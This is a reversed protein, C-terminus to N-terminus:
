EEDGSARKRANALLEGIRRSSVNLKKAATMEDADNSKQQLGEVYVANVAARERETLRAMVAAVRAAAEARPMSHGANRYGANDIWDRASREGVEFDTENREVSERRKLKRIEDVSKRFVSTGFFAELVDANNTGSFVLEHLWDCVEQAVDNAQQKSLGSARRFALGKARSVLENWLEFYWSEERNPRLNRMIYVLAASSINAKAKALGGRPKRLLERLEDVLEAPRYLPTGDDQMLTLPQLDPEDQYGDSSM